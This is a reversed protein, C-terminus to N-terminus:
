KRKLVGIAKTITKDAAKIQIIYIGAPVINGADDKGDWFDVNEGAVAAKGDAITRVLEGNKNYVKITATGAAQLVYRIAIGEEAVFPNKSVMVKYLPTVPKEYTVRLVAKAINGAGDKATVVIVNEGEKLTVDQKIEPGKAKVVAGNVSIEVDVAATVNDTATGVLKVKDVYVLAGDRPATIALVPPVQDPPAPKEVVEVTIKAPDSVNGATDTVTLTVTYKGVKNYVKTVTAGSATTGDGLDWSYTAIGVEDTSGAGSLTIPTGVEVKIDTGANAVPKKTDRVVVVENSVPSSTGTADKSRAVIKNTGEALSVTLSFKGDAGATTKGASAGNVFVEVELDAAAVGSVSVSTKNTPTAIPGLVPTVAGIPGTSFKVSIDGVFPNGNMDTIVNKDLTLQYTTNGSLPAAPKITVKTHSPDLGVTIKVPKGTSLDTLSWTSADVWAPHLEESFEIEISTTVPVRASGDAPTIKVVSPPITDITYFKAELKTIPAGNADVIPNGAKDTIDVAGKEITVIYVRNPKLPVLGTPKVFIATDNEDWRILVPSNEPPLAIIDGIKIKVPPAVTKGDTTQTEVSLTADLIGLRNMPRTFYIEVEADLPVQKAGPAPAISYTPGPLDKDETAFRGKLSTLAVPNGAKDTPVTGTLMAEYVRAPVLKARPDLAGLKEVDIEVDNGVWKAAGVDFLQKVVVQVTTGTTFNRVLFTAASVTGAEMTESFKVKITKTAVPVGVAGDLPIEKGTGPDVYVITATPPITDITEFSGKIEEIPTPDDKSKALQNGALDTMKGTVTITYTSNPKLLPPVIARGAARALEVVKDMDILKLTLVETGPIAGPAWTASFAGADVLMKLEIPPAVATTVGEIERSVSFKAKLVSDRDMPESFIVQFGQVTLVEPDVQKEGKPPFTGVVYPPTIDTTAKIAKAEVKVGPPNGVTDTMTVRVDLDQTGVGAPLTLKETVAVDVGGVLGVSVKKTALVTGASDLIDVTYDKPNAETYKFSIEVEKTWEVRVPNAATPSTITIVPSSNDVVVPVAPDAVNGAVDFTFSKVYYTGDKVKTTDWDATFPATTVSAILVTTPGPETFDKVDYYYEVKAIGSPDVTYPSELKVTGKVVAKEAAKYDKGAITLLVDAKEAPRAPPTADVDFTAKAVESVNGLEDVGTAEVVAAGDFGKVV